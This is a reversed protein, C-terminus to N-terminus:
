LHCSDAGLAEEATDVLWDQRLCGGPSSSPPFLGGGPIVTTAFHSSQPALARRTLSVWCQVVLTSPAWSHHQPLSRFLRPASLSSWHVCSGRFIAFPEPFSHAVAGPRVRPEGEEHQGPDRHVPRQVDLPPELRPVARDEWGSACHVQSCSLLPPLTVGLRSM